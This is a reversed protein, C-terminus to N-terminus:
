HIFTFYYFILYCLVVALLNWLGHNGVFLEWRFFWVSKLDAGRFSPVFRNVNDCYDKYSDGFVGKLRKEERKVRNIMYFYYVISFIVILWINGTLLVGGLILLFRGIYMPNRILVYPGKTALTKQKKLSAFCWLQILEGVLSVTLGIFFYSQKVQTMLAALLVLSIPARFKVLVERVVRNNFAKHISNVPNYTM